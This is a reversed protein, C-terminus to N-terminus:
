TARSSRTCPPRRLVYRYPEHWSAGPLRRTVQTARHNHSCDIWHNRARFQFRALAPNVTVANITGPLRDLDVGNAISTVHM